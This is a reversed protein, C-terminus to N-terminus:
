DILNKTSSKLELSEGMTKMRSENMETTQGTSTDFGSITLDKKDTTIFVNEKITADLSDGIVLSSSIVAAGVILGVAMIATNRKRRRINNLALRWLVLHRPSRWVLLADRGLFAFVFSTAWSTLVSGTLHSGVLLGSLGILSTGLPILIQNGWSMARMDRNLMQSTLSWALHISAAIVLSLTDM